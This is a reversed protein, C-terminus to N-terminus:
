LTEDELLLLRKATKFVSIVLPIVAVGRFVLDHLSNLLM